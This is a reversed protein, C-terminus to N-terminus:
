CGKTKYHMRILRLLLCPSSWASSSPVALGYELLYSVEQQFLTRKTPNVRYAHQKIPPHHGVDIDHELVTTRSPTDAFLSPYTNILSCVDNQAADDLHKLHSKLNHLIESNRLRSCGEACVFVLGDSEPSYQSPSAPVVVPVASPAAPSSSSNVGADRVFYPKMLNVHCVRRKRRRDPTGIVYDTDSLKEQVTYPGCFKAQLSSGPVPLLTLVKDGVEFKRQVSKKDFKMKMKEQSASLAERAIECAKHLREKFCSVYDLVSQESIATDSLYKEKLLRLPGRVTHGFVLEAPSFGTCEQVSERVALLLLPLGEDWERGSELCFKRMMAKLTQHFRELAGQSEPHYASSKQHKISLSKLVQAFIKSMFNSGQDTQVSKPLGFTSFFNVLARVIAKVKITRLPIAEPFRTAACMLTLIYQHGSKTKPLPGVCDIIIQEFPEGLAPIPHLPAPPIVQNPKGSVQCVHCSRCYKTVDSKLGPWFFHRLIRHYTKRIGLHGSFSDHALSLVQPRFKQPVVVQQFVNWGLDSSSPPHWKRMLVDNEISYVRPNQDSSNAALLCNALTPDNQQAHIFDTKNVEFSLDPTAPLIKESVCKEAKEVPLEAKEPVAESCLFSDSLDADGYKRKHARTVVCAPFVSPLSDAAPESVFVFDDVPNEIVEPIPFVKGNALDNGLIMTVGQVPLRARVGVTVPGSVLPSQLFVRHLSARLVSMKVGWVLADAGCFSNSSFPLASELILSQAAGTDRLIVIPVRDEEIGTLSAFGQSIFPRYSSDLGDNGPEDSVPNPTSVSRVFGVSKPKKLTHMQEKRRLSPCNAILHGTDHCYFCERVTMPVQDPRTQRKPSVRLIRAPKSLPACERRVASYTARHTLVFEDALVAAKSLSDVKQENLYVVVNEPLCTKFEELLVLERLQAFDKVKSAALWKDFLLTKERAFEVHTQNASKECTRFKQRYAEPVLEYARLITSKVIEYDLSDDISLSACVEQAKGVLKCQLLLSWVDKPWKLTTAIREFANFYSDVESERFPPVLAIQKSANFQDSSFPDSPRSVIQSVPTSTVNRQRSPDLEMARIRLHMLEVEKAKAELEVEKLRLALRLDETVLGPLQGAPSVNPTQIAAPAEAGPTMRGSAAQPIAAAAEAGADVVLGGTAEVPRPKSKVIVGKDLLQATLCQKIEAKKANLPVSVNFLNAVLLLDAKTCRDLKDMTPQQAYDDVDFTM